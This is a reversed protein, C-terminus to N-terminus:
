GRYQRSIKRMRALRDRHSKIQTQPESFDKSQRDVKGKQANKEMDKKIADFDINYSNDAIDFIGRDQLLKVLANRYDAGGAQDLRIQVDNSKSKHSPFMDWYRIAANAIMHNHWEKILDDNTVEAIKDPNRYAYFQVNQALTKKSTSKNFNRFKPKPIATEEGEGDTRLKALEELPTIAADAKQKDTLSEGVGDKKPPPASIRKKLPDSIGGYASGKRPPTTVKAVPKVPTPTPTPDDDDPIKDILDAIEQTVASEAKWQARIEEPTQYKNGIRDSELLLSELDMDAYKNDAPYQKALKELPAIAKDVDSVPSEKEIAKKLATNDMRGIRDKPMGVAIAKEALMQREVGDILRGMDLIRREGGSDEVSASGSPYQKSPKNLRIVQLEGLHTSGSGRQGIDSSGTDLKTNTDLANAIAKMGDRELIRDSLGSEALFKAGPKPKSSTKPKATSVIKPLGNDYKVKKRSPKASNNMEVLVLLQDYLKRVNAMQEDSGGADPHYKRSLDLYIKRAVSADRKANDPLDFDTFRSRDFNEDMLWFGEKDKSPDVSLKPTSSEAETKGRQSSKKNGGGMEILVSLQDYLKRANAVQELSGGNSPDYKKVLDLYYKKAVSADGKADDPMDFDPFRSRDFNEDKLWFGTKDNADSPNPKSQNTPKPTAIKDAILGVIFDINDGPPTTVKKGDVVIGKADESLLSKFLRAEENTSFTYVNEGIENKSPSLSQKSPFFNYGDQFNKVLKGFIEKQQDDYRGIAGGKKDTSAIVTGTGGYVRKAPDAVRGVLGKGVNGSDDVTFLTRGGRKANVKAIRSKREEVAKLYELGNKAMGLAMKKCNNKIPQCKGGCQYNVPTKCKLRKLSRPFRSLKKELM